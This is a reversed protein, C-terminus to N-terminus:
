LEGPLDCNEGGHSGAEKAQTYFGVGAYGYRRADKLVYDNPMVPEMGAQHELVVLAEPSLLPRLAAMVPTMDRMAYPPDLFILDYLEQAEKLYEVARRWDMHLVRARDGFGLKEVNEKEVAVALRDHDVLVAGQAGRSLAELALAGSGAFLDLVRAGRVSGQLINFVNERVRDLTPRTDRGPPAKITRSRAEGAIIRM